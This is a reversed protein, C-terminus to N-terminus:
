LLSHTQKLLIRSTRRGIQQRSSRFKSPLCCKKALYTRIHVTIEHLFGQDPCTDIFNGITSLIFNDLRDTLIMHHACPRLSIFSAINEPTGDFWLEERQEDQYVFGKIVNGCELLAKMKYAETM